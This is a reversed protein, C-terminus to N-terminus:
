IATNLPTRMEHSVSATTNMALKEKQEKIKLQYSMTHDQLNILYSEAGDFM